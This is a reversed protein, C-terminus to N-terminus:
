RRAGPEVDTRHAVHLVIHALAPGTVAIAAALLALRLGLGTDWAEVGLAALVLPAGYSAARLAHARAMVDTFRLVGLAGGLILVLGAVALVGAIVFRVSEESAIM